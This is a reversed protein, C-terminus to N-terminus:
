CNKNNTRKWYNYQCLIHVWIGAAENDRHRYSKPAATKISQRVTITTRYNKQREHCNWRQNYDQRQIVLMATTGETGLSKDTALQLASTISPHKGTWWTTNSNKNREGGHLRTYRHMVRNCQHYQVHRTNGWRQKMATDPYGIQSSYNHGM